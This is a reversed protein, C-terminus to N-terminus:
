LQQFRTRRAALPQGNVKEEAGQGLVLVLPGDANHEGAGAAVARLADPRDLALPAHDHHLVGFGRLVVAHRLAGDGRAQHIIDQRHRLHGGLEDGVDGMGEAFPVIHVAIMNNSFVPLIFMAVALYFSKTRLLDKLFGRPAPAAKTGAEKADPHRAPATQTAPEEHRRAPILMAATMVLLFSCIGLVVYANQWGINTILLGSLPIFVVKSLPIGAAVLGLALGARKGTVYRQVTALPVVYNAGTGLAGIVYFFILEQFNTVLSCLALGGGMIISSAILPFRPGYRDTLWGIGVNALAGGILASSAVSGILARSWGFDKEFSTFFTTLTFFLPGTSLTLMFCAAIVVWEKHKSIKMSAM